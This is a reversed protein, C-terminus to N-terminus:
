PSYADGTSRDCEGQTGKINLKFRHLFENASKIKYSGDPKSMMKRLNLCFYNIKNYMRSQM